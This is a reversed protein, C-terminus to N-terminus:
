TSFLTIPAAGVVDSHDVIQNRSIISTEHYACCATKYKYLFRIPSKQIIDEPRDCDTLARYEKSWWQAFPNMSTGSENLPILMSQIHVIIPMNGVNYVSLSPVRKFPPWRASSRTYCPPWMLLIMPWVVIQTQYFMDRGLMVRFMYVARWFNPMLQLVPPM